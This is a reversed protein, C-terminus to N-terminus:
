HDCTVRPNWAYLIGSPNPKWIWAHLAYFAPLGYRNPSPTFDFPHGFLSPPAANVGNADQWAQQFVVYELAALKLRGNDTPEYVLAEPQQPDITADLLSTNVLHEGMGGQGPQDICAHGALDHLHLTYGAAEAVEPDHFQATAPKAGDFTGLEAAVAIGAGTLLPLSSLLAFVVRKRHSM